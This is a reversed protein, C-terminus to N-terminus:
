NPSLGTLQKEILEYLVGERLAFDTQVIKQIGIKSLLTEILLMAPVILDVRVNDMGKMQLREERTSKILRTYVNQFQEISIGQTTRSKEGPNVEDIIDAITDFAGSCGILTKVGEKNCNLFAAAHKEEFYQRITRIESAQIPNSIPFTNIVRAMGTAQSEKWVVEKNQAVILENSGGGIDLVVSPKKLSEFALLVGKFILEAETEGSVVKVLWGSEEGLKELYSIKNEATRVASTAIVKVVDVNLKRIIKYHESFSSVTRKTAEDSIENAKIKNDGLKVLQKSQHLIKFAANEVEAILLNCTNTGLDIVAIRM